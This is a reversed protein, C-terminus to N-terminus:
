LKQGDTKPIDEAMSQQIEVNAQLVPQAEVPQQVSQPDEVGAEANGQDIENQPQHEEVVRKHEIQGSSSQTDGEISFLLNKKRLENEM